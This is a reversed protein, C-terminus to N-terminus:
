RTLGVIQNGHGRHSFQPLTLLEDWTVFCSAFGPLRPGSGASKLVMNPPWCIVGVRGPVSSTPLSAGSAPSPWLRGGPDQRRSPALDEALPLAPRVEASGPRRPPPGPAARRPGRQGGVAAPPRPCRHGHHCSVTSAASLVRHGPPHSGRGCPAGAGGRAGGGAPAGGVQIEQRTLHSTNLRGGPPREWTGQFTQLHLYYATGDEMDHRVWFATDGACAGTLPPREAPGSAAPRASVRTLLANGPRNGPRRKEAVAGELVRQYGAACAPVVGRLAM